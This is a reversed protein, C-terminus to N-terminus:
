KLDEDDADYDVLKFGSIVETEAEAQM